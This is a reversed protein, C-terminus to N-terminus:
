DSVETLKKLSASHEEKLAQLRAYDEENLDKSGYSAIEQELKALQFLEISHKWTEETEERSSKSGTFNQATLVGQRFIIEIAQGLGAELMQHRLRDKELDSDRSAIRIIENRVKDLEESEFEFTAFQEEHQELLWPHELVTLIILRERDLLSSNNSKGIKTKNLNGISKEEKGRSFGRKQNFGRDWNKQQNERNQQNFSQDHLNIEPVFDGGFLNKLRRGFDNEYYGRIKQDQIDNLVRAIKQELGARQEPTNHDGESILEEWLVLALPKGESLLNEFANAGQGAVYSDPDEGEPLYVFKLSHGPKLLPLSRDVVRIAARQGAKDGDFCMMPEPTLRWMERIQDETVATGLPAVGEPFGAQALGIVDMYGEAVLLRGKEFAAKRAGSLNYLLRGKHFLPTEPSNLYKAKAQSSLARGGFAVVRGQRDTIPFMIRHRFRDYSEAGDDPKILMGAEILMEETIEDRALMAEKLANKSNPAFGLRFKKVTEKTLGRQKIYSRGEAGAQAVLQSEFWHTVAEMVDYLSKKVKAKKQDYPTQKPIELGAQGALREVTEPFSLGETELTFNIVDGHAGCGFCHYFGKEDNVTFSPTKENHFPCLGTHERGKRTLRVKRGVVDSVPLRNRIEELFDPTFGM